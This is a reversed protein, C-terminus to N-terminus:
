ADAGTTAAAQTQALAATFAEDFVPAMSEVYTRTPHSNDLYVTVGGIVPPCVNDPCFQSSLDMTVFQPDDFLPAPFFTDYPQPDLVTAADHSCRNVATMPDRAQALCTSPSTTYRPNDRLAIVPIGLTRLQEARTLFRSDVVVEPQDEISRNGTTFVVDPHESRIEDFAIQNQAACADSTVTGAALEPQEDTFAHMDCGPGVIVRMRWGQRQVLEALVTNWTDVHSSGTVFITPATSQDTDRRADLECESVEQGYGSVTHCDANWRPWEGSLSTLAPQLTTFLQPGSYEPSLVAAGPNDARAGVLTLRLIDGAWAGIVLALSAGLAGLRVALSGLRVSRRRDAAPATRSTARRIPQEVFRTSLWALVIAAEIAVIGQPTTLQTQDNHAMWLVIIPWHWLYLGYSNSGLWTLPRSSLLRETSFRSGTNHSLFILAAFTLPVAAIIGPFASSVNVIMGFGLLGLLGVWGAVLRTRPLGAMRRELRPLAVAFIGGACFEWFRALTDYYALPQNTATLVISHVLSAGGTVALMLVVAAAPSRKLRRAVAIAAWILLPWVLYVQMQVAMAWYHQVPSAVDGAHLYDNGHAALVWNVSFTAAGIIEGLIQRWWTMPTLLWTGLTTVAVVLWAQPLMRKLLNGWFHRVQAWAERIHEGPLRRLLSGTMFYASIFFFLDVAGSVRHFWIHYAAVLLAAIARLGQIDYRYTPKEPM